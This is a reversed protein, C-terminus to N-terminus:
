LPLRGTERTRQTFVLDDGAWEIVGLELWRVVIWEVVTPAVGFRLLVVAARRVTLLKM